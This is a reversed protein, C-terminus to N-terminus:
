LLYIIVCCWYFFRKSSVETSSWRQCFDSDAVLKPDFHPRMLAGAEMTAGAISIEDSSAMNKLIELANDSVVPAGYANAWDEGGGLVGHGGDEVGEAWQVCLLELQCLVSWCIADEPTSFACKFSDGETAIEYGDCAKL